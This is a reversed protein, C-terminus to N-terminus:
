CCGKKGYGCSMRREDDIDYGFLKMDASLKKRLKSFVKEPLENIYDENTKGPVGYRVNLQGFQYKNTFNHRKLFQDVDTSITELKTVADFKMKCILCLENYPRWHRNVCSSNGNAVYEAFQVWTPFVGDVPGQCNTTDVVKDKYASILRTFPHRVEIFKYYSRYKDPFIGRKVTTIGHKILNEENHSPGLSKDLGTALKMLFNKWSTCGTKPLACIMIRHKEDAFFHNTTLLTVEDPYDPEGCLEELYNAREEASCRVFSDSERSEPQPQQVIFVDRPWVQILSVMLIIGVLTGGYALKLVWSM